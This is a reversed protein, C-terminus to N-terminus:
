KQLAVQEPVLRHLSEHVATPFAQDYKRLYEEQQLIRLNRDNDKFDKAFKMYIGYVDIIKDVM